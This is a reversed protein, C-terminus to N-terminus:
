YYLSIWRIIRILIKRCAAFISVMKLKLETGDNLVLKDDGHGPVEQYMEYSDPNIGALTYLAAGTTPNPSRREKKDIHIVVEEHSHGQENNKDM